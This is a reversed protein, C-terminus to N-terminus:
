FHGKVRLEPLPKSIEVPAEPEPGTDSTKAPVAAPVVAPAQEPVPTSIEEGTADSAQESIQESTQDATQEQVQVEAPASRSYFYPVFSSCGTFLIVGAFVTVCTLIPLPAKEHRM